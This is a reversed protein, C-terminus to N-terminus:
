PEPKWLEVLTDLYRDLPLPPDLIRVVRHLFVYSHLSGMLALAAARPDTLRVRGAAIARELYSEILALAREPPTPHVELDFPLIHRAEDLSKARMWCALVEDLKRSIFPVFAEGVRRVTEGVDESGDLEALFTLPPLDQGERQMAATFLDEKTPAHRLLAAPSVGVRAAIAALTAAEFGRESFVERAALLVDERTAKPPRGM